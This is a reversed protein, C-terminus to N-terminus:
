KHTDPGTWPRLSSRDPNSYYSGATGGTGPFGATVLMGQGVSPYQQTDDFYLEAATSISRM